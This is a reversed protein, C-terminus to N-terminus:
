MLANMSINNLTNIKINYYVIFGLEIAIIIIIITFIIVLILMIINNDM